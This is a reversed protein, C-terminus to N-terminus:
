SDHNGKLLLLCKEQFKLHRDIKNSLNFKDGQILMENTLDVRSFLDIILSIHILNKIGLIPKPKKEIFVNLKEDADESSDFSEFLEFRSFFIDQIHNYDGMDTDDFSSKSMSDKMQRLIMQFQNVYEKNWGVLKDIYQQNNRLGANHVLEERKVYEKVLTIVFRLNKNENILNINSEGLSSVHNKKVIENNNIIQKIDSLSSEIDLLLVDKSYIKFRYIDHDFFVPFCTKERALGFFGNHCYSYKSIIQYFTPDFKFFIGDIFCNMNDKFDFYINDINIEYGLRICRDFLQFSEFELDEYEGFLKSLTKLNSEKM